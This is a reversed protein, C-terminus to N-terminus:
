KNKLKKGKPRDLPMKGKLIYLIHEAINTTHDGAREIYKAAFLLDVCHSILKPEEMIYTITERLMSNYLEDLERDSQWVLLAKTEDRESFADLADGIQKLALTGMHRIGASVDRPMDPHIDALLTAIHKAIDGIRELDAAIKFASTIERLDTAMPQRRAILSVAFENIKIEQKDIKADDIVIKQAAEPDPSKIMALASAMQAEALGGMQFIMANLQKLEDDFSHVIHKTM